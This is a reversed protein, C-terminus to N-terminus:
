CFLSCILVEEWRAIDVVDIVWDVDTVEVVVVEDVVFDFMEAVVGDAVSDTVEVVVVDIMEAVVGDVVIDTVEVVVAVDIVEVVVVEDVVIDTVDVAGAVVVSM